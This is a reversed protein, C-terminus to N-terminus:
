YSKRQSLTIQYAQIDFTAVVNHLFVDGLIFINGDEAPGGDQTGSYCLEKGHEYVGLPLLQDKADISFSKGGIVVDFAPVKADCEVVYGGWDDSYKAPPKFAANYAAASDTPIYNLTTGTDLITVNSATTLHASGPFVYKDIDVIYYWYQFGYHQSLLGQMPAVVTPATTAVPAVGGFALYGLNPDYTSSEQAAFSGRNLAVSFYPKSVLKDKVANWFFPYYPENNAASDKTPDTGVYVSTLNPFALGLLGTDVGDGEWAADTVLGFEQKPVSLGAVTITEFGVAGTLFEGDGYTINFNRNPYATYTKSQKPNYGSTGFACESQPEPYGTLNYCKFGTEAVWTDSSGTDVILSFPQGGVTVNVLYEEDFDSGALPAVDGGTMSRRIADRIGARAPTRSTKGSIPLSYEAQPLTETAEVAKSSGHIKVHQVTLTAHAVSALAASVLIAFPGM